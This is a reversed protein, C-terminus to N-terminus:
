EAELSKMQSFEVHRYIGDFNVFMGCLISFIGFFIFGQAYFNFDGLFGLIQPVSGAGILFGFPSIISVIAANKERPVITSIAFHILPMLSTAVPSQLCFLILSSFPPTTGMLSTLIGCAIFTFVFTPKLGFRDVFVGAVIATMVSVIRAIVTLRYVVVSDLLNHRQFYDPVMNYIGYNLGNAFCLLVMLIWFSPWSFLNRIFPITVPEGKVKGNQLLFFLALSIISSLLGLVNLIEQWSCRVVMHKIIMPGLIFAISQATGFIGFAKGLHEVSVSERIMAVASPIFLGSCLGVLFLAVRFFIFTETYSALTLAFGTSVTSFIVTTKHTVKSSIFQSGFLTLAFGVSLTFFLNGTNTHTLHMEECIYPTLPVFIVRALINLISVFSILVLFPIFPVFSRPKEAIIM